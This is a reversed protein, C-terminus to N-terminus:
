TNFFASPHEDVKKFTFRYTIDDSTANGANDKIQSEYRINDGFNNYNPGAQPLEGPIYNAIITVSNKYIPDRFAYLDTNDALPDNSILPAERHSSSMLAVSLGVASCVSLLRLKRKTFFAKMNLFFKLSFNRCRWLVDFPLAECSM